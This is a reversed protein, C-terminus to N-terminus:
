EIESINIVYNEIGDRMYIEEDQINIGIVIGDEGEIEENLKIELPGKKTNVTIQTVIEEKVINIINNMHLYIIYNNRSM